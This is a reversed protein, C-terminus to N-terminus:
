RGRAAPEHNRSGCRGPLFAGLFSRDRKGSLGGFLPLGSGGAFPFVHALSDDHNQQLSGFPELGTGITAQIAPSGLGHRFPPEDRGSGAPTFLFHRTTFDGQEISPNETHNIGNRGRWSESFSDAYHAIGQLRYGLRLALRSGWVRFHLHEIFRIPLRKEVLSPPKERTSTIIASKSVSLTIAAPKPKSCRPCSLKRRSGSILSRLWLARDPTSIILRSRTM